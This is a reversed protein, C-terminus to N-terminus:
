KGGAELEKRRGELVREARHDSLLARVRGPDEDLIRFLDDGFADVLAEATRGGVGPYGTLRLVLGANGHGRSGAQPEPGGAQTQPATKSQQSRGQGEFIPPPADPRSRGRSGRRGRIGRPAAATPASEAERAPSRSEVVAVTEREAM